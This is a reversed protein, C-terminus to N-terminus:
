IKKEFQLLTVNWKKVCTTAKVSDSIMLKQKKKTMLDLANRAGPMIDLFDLMHKPINVKVNVDNDSFNCVVLVVFEEDCRVFSYIRNADFENNDLNVYMLDYFKGQSFIKSYVALNVIRHYMKYLTQSEQPLNNLSYKGKNRWQQVTKVRWYDFITTRGDLGSFGERDMGKEGFEQGFYLMLPNTGMLASVALAPIGKQADNIFFSSAIRQEDHNELFYLMHEKIDDLQQWCNTINQAGCKMQMVSKLKDYLGVKDYLYDFNGNYIYERYLSPNYVEGVFIIEKNKKKVQPIAWHWFEVPVMEAMDCRFGDVGKGTWFLLIDLMKNWTNPIPNFHKVMGGCYDVGYNLKVTEYWDDRSPYACFCDNGTAKAPFEKYPGTETGTMDFRCSLPQNPIYYFNNLPSFAQTCNDQQGLDMVGDPKSDSYYQRAVHNPVFDIIAKLGVKHTRAILNEFEDMRKCPVSALDPDIDYYDKIAYPSGAKGKVMARHDRRIGFKSCDTQTAHEIIGTYWVHTIGLNKIKNLATLTFDSLKGCGNQEINGNFVPTEVKNGFLRPLVQYITIKSM